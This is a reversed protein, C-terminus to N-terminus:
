AALETEPVGAAGCLARAVIERAAEIRYARSGRVDDIPALGALHEAAVAGGLSGDAPRGVLAAELERLRRAVASCSGVAVAAEVIRGEAGVVLRAAAMAISIVLYRRAGLKVFASAGRASAKPIRIATVMEGPRIATKRNGLIFKGLPLRRTEGASRLEVEADLAMLAPVGDAAPSANCLNGAVTGVNQIQVSGVERAAARLADFAPPLDARAIATWTTRAGIVIHSDDDSVGRMESLGNIDLVNERLPKAGLAPYFDTGGALIRWPGEALLALAEELSHPKAYRVMAGWGSKGAFNM